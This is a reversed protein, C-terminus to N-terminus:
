GSWYSEDDPLLRAEIEAVQAAINKDTSILAAIKNRAHLATTHDIRGFVRAISPLSCHTHKYALYMAIQRPRVIHKHRDESLIQYRELDYKECVLRLIREASIKGDFRCQPPPSPLEVVTPIPRAAPQPMAASPFGAARKPGDLRRLRERHAKHLEQVYSM